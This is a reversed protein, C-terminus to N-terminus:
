QGSLPNIQHSTSFKCDGVLNRLSPDIWRCQHTVYMLRLLRNVTEKYTMDGLEAPKGDKEAFWPKQFDANLRKIVYDKHTELWAARKERPLAFV